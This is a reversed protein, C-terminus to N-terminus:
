EALELAASLGTFGAGVVCVDAEVEGALPPRAPAPNASAAYYSQPYGSVDDREDVPQFQALGGTDEPLGARM